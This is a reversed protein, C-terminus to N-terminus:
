DVPYPICKIKGNEKYSSVFGGLYCPAVNDPHGEIETAFRIIEEDSLINNLMRSAAIIGAIICTASSGLGRSAPVVTSLSTIKVPIYPKNIKEFVYQYSKLILNNKVVLSKFNVLTDVNSPEFLFTINLCM